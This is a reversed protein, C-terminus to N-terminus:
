GKILLQARQTAEGCLRARGAEDDKEAKEILKQLEQRRHDDKVAALETRLANIDASCDARAPAPLVGNVILAIGATALGALARKM